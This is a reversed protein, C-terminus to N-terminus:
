LGNAMWHNSPWDHWALTRGKHCAQSAASVCVWKVCPCVVMTDRMWVDGASNCICKTETCNNFGKREAYNNLHGLATWISSKSFFQTNRSQVEIKFEYIAVFSHMFSVTAYLFNGTKRPWRDCKLNVLASCISLKATIQANGSSLGLKLKLIVIINCVTELLM